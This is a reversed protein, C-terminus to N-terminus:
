FLVKARYRQLAEELLRARGQVEEQKALIQPVTGKIAEVQQQYDAKHVKWQKKAEEMEKEALSWLRNKLRFYSLLIWIDAPTKLSGMVLFICLHFIFNQFLIRSNLGTM